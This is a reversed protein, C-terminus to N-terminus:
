CTNPKLLRALAERLEALKPPKALVCDVPIPIGTEQEFWKGWGTLLIVPKSPSAHTTAVQRGDVVSMGLDTIVVSFPDGSAL